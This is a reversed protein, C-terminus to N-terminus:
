LVQPFSFGFFHILLAKKINESKYLNKLTSGDVANQQDVVNEPNEMYNDFM